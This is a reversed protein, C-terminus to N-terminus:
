FNAGNLVYSNGVPYTSYAEFFSAVAGEGTVSEFQANSRLWKGDAQVSHITVGDASGGASLGAADVTVTIGNPSDATGFAIADITLTSEVKIYTSYNESTLAVDGSALATIRMFDFKSEGNNADYWIFCVTALDGIAIGLLEFLDNATTAKNSAGLLKIGIKNATANDLVAAVMIPSASGKSIIYDGAALKDSQYEVFEFQSNQPINGAACAKACERIALSNASIFAMMSQLGYTKGEFSHDVIQKMKSYAVGATKLVMRQLMQSESRPNKVSEVRDKTVQKGNFVSYTHSKTSGRRLGFFSKSGAM